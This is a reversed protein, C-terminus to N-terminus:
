VVLQTKAAEAEAEPVEELQFPHRIAGAVEAELHLLPVSSRIIEVREWQNSLLPRKRTHEGRGLLSPLIRALRSLMPHTTSSEEEAAAAVTDDEEEVVAVSWLFRLPHLTLLSKGHKVPLSSKSTMEGSLATAAALKSNHESRRIVSIGIFRANPALIQRM